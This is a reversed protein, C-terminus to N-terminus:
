GTVQEDSLLVFGRERLKEIEREFLVRLAEQGNATLTRSREQEDSGRTTVEDVYIADAELEL